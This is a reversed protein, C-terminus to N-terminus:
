QCMNTAHGRVGCARRPEKAQKEEAEKWAVCPCTEFQVLGHCLVCTAKEQTKEEQVFWNPFQVKALEARSLKDNGNTSREIRQPMGPYDGLRGRQTPPMWYGVTSGCTACTHEDFDKTKCPRHCGGSCFEQDSRFNACSELPFVANCAACYLEGDHCEQSM